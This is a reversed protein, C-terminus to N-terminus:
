IGTAYVALFALIGMQLFLYSRSRGDEGGHLEHYMTGNLWAFWVLVFLVLFDRLGDWDVHVALTHALQAILVVYVLDYFLELFSVTRDEIVEGHARPPRFWNRLSSRLHHETNVAAGAQSPTEASAQKM